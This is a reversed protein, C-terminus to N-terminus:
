FFVDFIYAAKICIEKQLMTPKETQMQKCFRIIAEKERQTLPRGSGQKRSSM